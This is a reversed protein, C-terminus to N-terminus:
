LDLASLDINPDYKRNSYIYRKKYKTLPCPRFERVLNRATSCSVNKNQNCDRTWEPKGEFIQAFWSHHNVQCITGNGPLAFSPTPPCKFTDSVGPVTSNNPLPKMMATEYLKVAAKANHNMGSISGSQSAGIADM